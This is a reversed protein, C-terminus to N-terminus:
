DDENHDDADCCFRASSWPLYVSASFPQRPTWLLSSCVNITEDCTVQLTRMSRTLDGILQELDTLRMAQTVFGLSIGEARQRARM